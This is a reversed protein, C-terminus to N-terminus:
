PPEVLSWESLDSSEFGSLFLAHPGNDWDAQDVEINLLIPLLTENSPPTLSWHFKFGPQAFSLARGFDCVGLAQDEILGLDVRIHATGCDEVWRLYTRYDDATNATRDVGTEAMKVMNVEDPSLGLHVQGSVLSPYMIAQTNLVPPTLSEGVARNANRAYKHGAPLQSGVRGFTTWEIVTADIAFPNNDSKRFWAYDLVEMHVVPCEPGPCTPCCEGPVCPYGTACVPPGLDSLAPIFSCFNRHDDELSGEPTGAMNNVTVANASPTFDVIGGCCGDGDLDCSFTSFATPQNMHVFASPNHESDMVSHGLGFACHGLEHLIVSMADKPASPPPDDDAVFCGSGGCNGIMPTLNNWMFVARRTAPKLPDIACVRVEHIGAGGTWGVPHMIAQPGIYNPHQPSMAVRDGVVYVGAALPGASIAILIFFLRATM